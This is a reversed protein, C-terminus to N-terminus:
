SAACGVLGRARSPEVIERGRRLAFDAAKGVQDAIGAVYVFAGRDLDIAPGVEVHGGLRISLETMGWAHSATAATSWHSRAPAHAALFRLTDESAFIAGPVGMVFRLVPHSILGERVLENAERVHGAEYCALEVAVGADKAASVADRLAGRSLGRASEGANYVGADISLLDPKLALLPTAQSAGVTLGVVLDTRKRLEGVVQGMLDLAASPRTKSAVVTLRVGCAGAVRCQEAESVLADRALDLNDEASGVLSAVIMLEVNAPTVIVTPPPTIIPHPEPLSAIEAPPPPMSLAPLVVRPRRQREEPVRAHGIARGVAVPEALADAATRKAHERLREVIKRAEFAITRTTNGVETIVGTAEVVDGAFVPALLEVGSYRVLRGEDGDLRVCLERAVDAFLALLSADDCPEDANSGRM